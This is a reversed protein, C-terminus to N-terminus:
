PEEGVLRGQSRLASHIRAEHVELEALLFRLEDRRLRAHGVVVCGLVHHERSNEVCSCVVRISTPGVGLASEGCAPCQVMRMDDTADKM